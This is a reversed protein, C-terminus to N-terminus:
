SDINYAEKVLDLAYELWFKGANPGGNCTGDSEGPPKIWLFADARTYRTDMTPTKGLAKGLLNCWGGTSGNGNRSTDIVYHVDGGLLNSIEESDEIENELSHYNSVNVAFGDALEVGAEELLDAKHHPEWWGSNAADIYVRVNPANTKLIRTAEKLELLRETKEEPSYSLAMGLADPELIIWVHSEGIGEGVAQYWDLFDQGQNGFAWLFSHTQAGNYTAFIPIKGEAGAKATLKEALLRMKEADPNAFWSAQPYCSIERLLDASITKGEARLDRELRATQSNSDLYFPSSAKIVACAQDSLPTWEETVIIPDPEPTPEPTLIEVSETVVVEEVVPEAIIGVVEEQELVEAVTKEEVRSEQASEDVFVEASPEPQPEQQPILLFAGVVFFLILAVGIRLSM